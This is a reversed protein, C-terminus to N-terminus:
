GGLFQYSVQFHYAKLPLTNTSMTTLIAVAVDPSPYCSVQAFFLLVKLGHQDYLSLPTLTTSPQVAELKVTVDALSPTPKELPPPPPTSVVPSTKDDGEGVTTQLKVPSSQQDGILKQKAEEEKRKQLEALTLKATSAAAASSAASSDMSIKKTVGFEKMTNELLGRSIM